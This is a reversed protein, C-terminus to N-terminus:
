KVEIVVENTQQIWRHTETQFQRSDTTSIWRSTPQASPIHDVPSHHVPRANIAHINPISVASFQHTGLCLMAACRTKQEQSHRERHRHGSGAGHPIDIRNVCEAQGFDFNEFDFICISRLSSAGKGMAHSSNRSTNRELTLSARFCLRWMWNWNITNSSSTSDMWWAGFASNRPRMAFAVLPRNSHCWRGLLCLIAVVMPWWKRCSYAFRRCNFAFYLDPDICPVWNENGLIAVGFQGEDSADCRRSTRRAVIHEDVTRCQKCCHGRQGFWHPNERAVNASRRLQSRWVAFRIWEIEVAFLTTVKDWRIPSHRSVSCFCNKAVFQPVRWISTSWLLTADVNPWNLVFPVVSVTREVLWRCVILSNIKEFKRKQRHAIGCVMAVQNRISKTPTPMLMLVFSKALIWVGIVSCKIITAFVIFANRVSNLISVELPVAPEYRKKGFTYIDEM